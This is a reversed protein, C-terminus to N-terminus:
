LVLNEYYDYHQGTIFYMGSYMTTTAVLLSLIEMRNLTNTLFPQKSYQYVMSLILILFSLLAQIEPSVVSFIVTIMILVVKRYQIVVEYFFSEYKFGNFIFGYKIKLNLM